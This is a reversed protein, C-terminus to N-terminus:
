NGQLPEVIWLIVLFLLHRFVNKLLDKEKKSEVM